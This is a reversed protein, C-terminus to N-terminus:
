QKPSSTGEQNQQLYSPRQEDGKEWGLSPSEWGRREWGQKNSLRKTKSTEEIMNKAEWGLAWNGANRVPVTGGGGGGVTFSTYLNSPVMDRAKASM